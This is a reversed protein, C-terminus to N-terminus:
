VFSYPVRQCMMRACMCDEKAMNAMDGEASSLRHCASCSGGGGRVPVIGGLAVRAGSEITLAVLGGAASEVDPAFRHRSSGTSKGRETCRREGTGGEDFADGMDLIALVQGM